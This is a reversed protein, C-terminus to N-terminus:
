RLVLDLVGAAGLALGVFGNSTFFSRNVRSLDDPRVIAHQYVFAAATLALGVYWIAGFGERAGFWAFLVFVLAHVVRAARLATAV